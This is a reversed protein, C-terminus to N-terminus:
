KKGRKGKGRKGFFRDYVERGKKEGAYKGIKGGVKEFLSRLSM